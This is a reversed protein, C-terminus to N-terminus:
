ENLNYLNKWYNYEYYRDVDYGLGYLNRDGYLYNNYYDLNNTYLVCGPFADSGLCSLDYIPDTQCACDFYLLKKANNEINEFLVGAGAYFSNESFYGHNGDFQNDSSSWDSTPNPVCIRADSKSNEAFSNRFFNHANFSCYEAQYIFRYFNEEINANWDGSHTDFSIAQFPQRGPFYNVNRKNSPAPAYRCYLDKTCGGTEQDYVVQRQSPGPGKVIKSAFDDSYYGIWYNTNSLTCQLEDLVWQEQESSDIRALYTGAINAENSAEIFSFVSNSIYFKSGGNANAIRGADEHEIIGWSINFTDDPYVIYDGTTDFLFLVAESVTDYVAKYGNLYERDFCFEQHCIFGSEFNIDLFRNSHENFSAVNSSFFPQGRRSGVAWVFTNSSEV